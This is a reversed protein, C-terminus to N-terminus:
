IESLLERMKNLLEQAHQKSMIRSGKVWWNILESVEPHSLCEDLSVTNWLCRDLLIRMHLEVHKTRLVNAIKTGFLIQKPTPSEEGWKTHKTEYYGLKAKYTCTAHALGKLESTNLDFIWHPSSARHMPRKCIYCPTGVTAIM